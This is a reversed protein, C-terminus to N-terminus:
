CNDKSAVAKSQAILIIVTWVIYSVIMIGLEAILPVFLSTAGIVCGISIGSIKATRMIQKYANEDINNPIISVTLLNEEQNDATKPDKPHFPLTAIWQSLFVQFIGLAVFIIRLMFDPSVHADPQGYILANICICINIVNFFAMMGATFRSLTDTDNGLGRKTSVISAIFMIMAVFFGIIPFAYYEYPSGMRDAVGNVDFHVAVSDPMFCICVTTIVFLLVTLLIACVSSKRM